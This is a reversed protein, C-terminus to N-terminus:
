NLKKKKKNNTAKKYKKLNLLIFDMFIKICILIFEEPKKYHNMLYKNKLNLNEKNM